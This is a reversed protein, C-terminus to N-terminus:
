GHAVADRHVGRLERSAWRILFRDLLGRGVEGLIGVSLGCNSADALAVAEDVTAQSFIEESWAPIDTRRPQDARDPPLLARRVNRRRRYPCRRSGMGSMRAGM